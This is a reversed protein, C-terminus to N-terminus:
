SHAKKHCKVCLLMLNSPKTAYEPYLKISLIHHVVLKDKSKCKRCEANDRRWILNKLNYNGSFKSRAKSPTSYRKKRKELIEAFQKPLLGKKVKLKIIRTAVSPYVGARIMNNRIRNFQVEYYEM